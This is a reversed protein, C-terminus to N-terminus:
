RLQTGSKLLCAETDTGEGDSHISGGELVFLDPMWVHVVPGASLLCGGQRGKEGTGTFDM